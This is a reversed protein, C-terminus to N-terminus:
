LDRDFATYEFDLFNIVAKITGSESSYQRRFEDCWFNASNLIERLTSGEINKFDNPEDASYRKDDLFVLVQGTYLEKDRLLIPFGNSSYPISKSSEDMVLRSAIEEAEDKPIYVALDNKVVQNINSLLFLALAENGTAYLHKLIVQRDKPTTIELIFEKRDEESSLSTFQSLFETDEDESSPSNVRPQLEASM